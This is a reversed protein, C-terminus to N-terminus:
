ARCAKVTAALEGDNAIDAMYAELSIVRGDPSPMPLDGFLGVDDPSIELEAVPRGPDDFPSGNEPMPELGRSASAADLEADSWGPLPERTRGDARRTVVYGLYAEPDADIKALADDGFKRHVEQLALQHSDAVITEGAYRIAARREGNPGRYADPGLKWGEDLGVFETHGPEDARRVLVIELADLADVGDRLSIEAAERVIADDVAPGAYAAVEAVRDEVRAREAEQDAWGATDDARSFVPNGRLDQDIADLLDAVSTTQVEGARGIYGAEEAAERAADLPVRRDTKGKGKRTLGEAGIAALEGRDDLLGGRAKLFEVLSQGTRAAPAAADGVMEDTIRAIQAPDASFAPVDRDVTQMADVAEHARSVMRDHQEMAAAPPRTADLHEIVDVQDLAGRAPLPLSDRVAATAEPLGARIEAALQPPVDAAAVALARDGSRGGSTLLEGLGRAGAGFVGGLLGAFAANRLALDVGSELGARARYSQVIPQLALEVGANVAAESLATSLIRGAVTRAAGPGGGLMLTGVQVPDRIAGMGGGAFAAIWKLAGSRSGALQSFRLDADRTLALADEEISRTPMLEAALEPRRGALERVRGQWSSVASQLPGEWVGAERDRAQQDVGRWGMRYPNDLKEGTLDFIRDNRDDYAREMAAQAAFTNDVYLSADRAAQYIEGLSAQGGAATFFAPDEPQYWFGSM